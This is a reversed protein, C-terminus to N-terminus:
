RNPFGTYIMYAEDVDIKTLPVFGSKELRETIGDAAEPLIIARIIKM